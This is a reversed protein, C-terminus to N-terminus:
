FLYAGGIYLNLPHTKTYDAEDFRSKAIDILSHEFTLFVQWRSSIEVGVSYNLGFDFRKYSKGFIDTKAKAGDTKIVQKGLVGIGFYPGLGGLLTLDSNIHYRYGALVPLELYGLNQHINAWSGGKLSYILRADIYFDDATADSFLYEGKVGAGFGVYCDSSSVSNHLWSMNFDGVVGVRIEQARLGAAALLVVATILFRKM